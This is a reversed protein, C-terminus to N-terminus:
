LNRLNISTTFVARQYRDNTSVIKTNLLTFDESEAVPKVELATRVLIAIQISVVKGWDSGVFTANVYRDVSKDSDGDVNIGYLIQINEVGEAITIADLARSGVCKLTFDTQDVYFSNYILNAGTEASSGVQCAAPLINLIDGACDINLDEDGMYIVGISDGNTDSDTIVDPDSFITADVISSVGMGCSYSDPRGDTMFPIPLLGPKSSSYGTHQLTNTLIELAARGNDELISVQDRAISSKKSSLYSTTVGILLFLGIFMAILLEILSLGAQHKLKATRSVNSFNFTIM